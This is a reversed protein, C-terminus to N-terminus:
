EGVLGADTLFDMLRTCRIGLRNCGEHLSIRTPKPRFDESVVTTEEGADELEFAQALVFRAAPEQTNRASLDVIDSVQHIVWQQHQLTAGHHRRDAANSKAWDLPREGRATRELEEIVENPYCLERGQVLDTLAGWVSEPASLELPIAVLAAADIVYIM